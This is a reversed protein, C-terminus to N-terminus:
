LSSTNFGFTSFATFAGLFGTTIFLKLAANSPDTGIRSQMVAGFILCGFVNVALTGFPFANGLIQKSLLDTAWRSLAGLAGASMVILVQM